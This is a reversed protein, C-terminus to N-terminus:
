RRPRAPNCGRKDRGCEGAVIKWEPAQAERGASRGWLGRVKPLGVLRQVSAKAASTLKAWPSVGRRTLSSAMRTARWRNPTAQFRALCQIVLGSGAYARFFFPAVLQDLPSVGPRRPREPEAVFDPPAPQGLGVLVTPCVWLGGGLKLLQRARRLVAIGFCQGTIAQQHAWPGLLCVLHPEPKDRPTGHTGDRDIKQRPAGCLEGGLTKGGQQQDPVIRGPVPALRHPVPQTLVIPLDLATSHTHAEHDAWQWAFTQPEVRNFWFPHMPFPGNRFGVAQQTGCFEFLPDIGVIATFMSLM